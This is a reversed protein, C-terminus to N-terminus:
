AVEAKGRRGRTRRPPPLHSPAPLPVTVHQLPSQYIPSPTVPLHPVPYRVSACCSPVALIPPPCQPHPVLASHTTHTPCLALACVPQRVTPPASHTPCSPVTLPTPPACPSPACQNVCQPHPVTPPARPCQSHPVRLWHLPCRSPCSPVSSAVSLFLVALVLRACPRYKM